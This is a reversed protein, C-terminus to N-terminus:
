TAHALYMTINLHTNTYTHRLHSINWNNFHRWRVCVLSRMYQSMLITLVWTFVLFATQWCIPNPTKKKRTVIGDREWSGRENRQSYLRVDMLSHCSNHINIDYAMNLGTEDQLKLCEGLWLSLVSRVSFSLYAYIARGWDHEILSLNSFAFFLSRRIFM